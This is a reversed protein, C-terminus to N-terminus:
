SHVIKKKATTIRGVAAVWKKQLSQLVELGQLGNFFNVSTGKM